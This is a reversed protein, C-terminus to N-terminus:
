NSFNSGAAVTTALIYATGTRKYSWTNDLRNNNSPNIIVTVSNKSFTDDAIWAKTVIQDIYDFILGKLQKPKIIKAANVNDSDKCITAGQVNTIEILKLGYAINFDIMLNRAFRYAPTLTGDFFTTVFQQVKWQNQEIIITSCGAQVYTDRINYNMMAPVTGAPPLPMDPYVQGYVDDKPDNAWTNGSLVAMNAAAEYHQAPSLPAPCIAITCQASRPSTFSTPDDDVSGTLAVFPKFTIGAFRGTGGSQAPFGNAAELATCVTANEGYCNIIQTGWESGFLTLANTVSPTGVGAQTEAVTYTLSTSPALSADMTLGLTEATLGYWKTTVTVVAGSSTATVPSGAVANIANKIKTAVATATDASAINVQYYAGDVNNRGGVNVYHTGGATAPGTVTITQIRAAASDAEAQPYAYVPVNTGGGNIPFLIRCVAHIPSGAGYLTAAQTASTIQAPTDAVLAGQNAHNAEGLINIRQPLNDTTTNFNGSTLMYGVAAAIRNQSVSNSVSM